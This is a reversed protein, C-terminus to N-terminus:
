EQDKGMGGAGSKTTNVHSINDNNELSAIHNSFLGSTKVRMGFGMKGWIRELKQLIRLHEDSHIMQALLNEDIDDGSLEHLVEFKSRELSNIKRQSSQTPAPQKKNLTSASTTQLAKPPSSRIPKTTSAQTSLTLALNSQSPIVIPSLKTQTGTKPKETAAPKLTTSKPATSKPVTPKPLIPKPATPKPATPLKKTTAGAAGTKARKTPNGETGKRAQATGSPASTLIEVDETPKKRKLSATSSEASKTSKFAGTLKSSSSPLPKDGHVKNFRDFDPLQRPPPISENDSLDLRLPEQSVLIDAPLYQSQSIVDRQFSDQVQSSPGFLTGASTLTGRSAPISTALSGATEPRSIM